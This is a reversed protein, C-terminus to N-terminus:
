KVSVGALIFFIVWKHTIKKNQIQSHSKFGLIRLMRPTIVFTTLLFHAFRFKNHSRLATADLGGQRVFIIGRGWGSPTIQNKILKFLKNEKYQHVKVDKIVQNSWIIKQLVGRKEYSLSKWCLLPSKLLEVTKRTYEYAKSTDKNIKSLKKTLEDKEKNIYNTLNSLSKKILLKEDDELPRNDDTASELIFNIVCIEKRLEAQIFWSVEQNLEQLKNLELSQLNQM